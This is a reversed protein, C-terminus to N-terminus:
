AILGADIEVGLGPKQPVEIMGDAGPKPPDKFIAFRHTYAGVPPDHLLEWYPAHPWSAVLHLTAITGINGGGHHPIIRKGFVEALAGIKRLGSIGEMVLPEPQLIDYVGDTCMQRFENLGKNNEGGALPISVNRNLEALQAFEYRQLPEEL